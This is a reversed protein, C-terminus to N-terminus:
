FPIQSEDVDDDTTNESKEELNRKDEKSIFCVGDGIIKSKEKRKIEDPTQIEAVFHTKYLTWTDGDKILKPEKLPVIDLKLENVSVEENNKNIYTRKIIKSKTIKSVDINITIKQM